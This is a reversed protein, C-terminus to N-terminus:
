HMDCVSTRADVQDVIWFVGKLSSCMVVALHGEGGRTTDSEAVVIDQSAPKLASRRRDGFAVQTDRAFARFYKFLYASAGAQCNCDDKM